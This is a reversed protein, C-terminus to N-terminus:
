GYLYKRVTFTLFQPQKWLGIFDQFNKAAGILQNPM